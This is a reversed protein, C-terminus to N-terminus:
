APNRTSHDIPLIIHIRAGEYAPQSIGNTPQPPRAAFHHCQNRCIWMMGHHTEVIRHALSLGLGTGQDKTTYFPHFVKEAESAPIGPGSDNISIIAHGPAQAYFGSFVSLQGGQPMAQIANHIINQFVQGLLVADVSLAPLDTEFQEEVTIGNHRLLDEFRHLTERLIVEIKQTSRSLKLTKTYELLETVVQNLNQIGEAFNGFIGCLNNGDTKPQRNPPDPLSNQQVSQLKIGLEKQLLKSGMLINGLPNRIQHAVASSFEGLLALEKAKALESELRKKETIDEGVGEVGIIRGRKDKEPYITLSILHDEGKQNLHRYEFGKVIPLDGVMVMKFCQKVRERDEPAVVAEAKIDGQYLAERSYGTLSEMAKNVFIFRNKQNVRFIIDKRNEVRKQQRQQIQQIQSTKELIKKELFESMELSATHTRANEISLSAANGLAEAFSLEHSNFSRESKDRVLLLLGLIRKRIQLPVGILSHIKMKLLENKTNRDFRKSHGISKILLPARQSKVSDYIHKLKSPSITEFCKTEICRKGQREIYEAKIMTVSTESFLFVRCGPGVFEIGKKTVSKLTKKLDLSENFRAISRVLFEAESKKQESQQYLNMNDIGMAMINAMGSLLRLGEQNCPAKSRHVLIMAGLINDKSKLPVGVITNRANAEGDPTGAAPNLPHCDKVFPKGSSFLENVYINKIKGLFMSKASEEECDVATLRPKLTESNKIYVLIIAAGFFKRTTAMAKHLSKDFDMSQSIKTAVASIAYLEKSLSTVQQQIERNHSVVTQLQDKLDNIEHNLMIENIKHAVQVGFLYFNNLENKAVNRLKDLHIYLFGMLGRTEMLPIAFVPELHASKTRRRTHEITSDLLWSQANVEKKVKGNSRINDAMAVPILKKMKNFLRIEAAKVYEVDLLHCLATELLNDLTEATLSSEVTDLINRDVREPIVFGM